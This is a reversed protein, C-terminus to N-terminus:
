NWNWLIEHNKNPPPDTFIYIVTGALRILSSRQSSHLGVKTVGLSGRQSQPFSAQLVSPQREWLVKSAPRALSRTPYLAPSRLWNRGQMPWWSARHIIKWNSEELCAGRTIWEREMSTKTTGRHTTKLSCCNVFQFCGLHGAVLSVNPLNCYMWLSSYKVAM